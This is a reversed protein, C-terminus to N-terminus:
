GAEDKPFPMRAVGIRGGEEWKIPIRRPKDMPERCWWIVAPQDPALVRLEEEGDLYRLTVIRTEEM